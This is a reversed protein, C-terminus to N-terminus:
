LLSALTKLINKLDINEKQRELKGKTEEEIRERLHRIYKSSGKEKKELIKIQVKLGKYEENRTKLIREM